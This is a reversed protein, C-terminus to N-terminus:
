KIDEIIKYMNEVMRDPLLDKHKLVLKNLKEIKFAKYVELAKQEDKFQGLYTQKKNGTTCFEGDQCQAIWVNNKNSYYIGRKLGGTFFSNVRQPIFTCSQPSYERNGLVLLDKDLQLGRGYRGECWKAFNQFNHWHKCVTCGSYDKEEQGITPKYCRRLMDRWVDYVKNHVRARYRGEGIFGVGAVIPYYPDKIGGSIAHKRWVSKIYGTSVFRILIRGKGLIRLIEYHGYNNSPLTTGVALTSTVIQSCM